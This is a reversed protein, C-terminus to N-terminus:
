SGIGTFDSKEAPQGINLTIDAQRTRIKLGRVDYSYESNKVLFNCVM